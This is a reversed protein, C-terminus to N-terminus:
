GARAPGISGRVVLGPRILIQQPISPSSTM